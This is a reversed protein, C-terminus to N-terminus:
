WCSLERPRWTFAADCLLKSIWTYDIVFGLVWESRFLKRTQIKTVDHSFGCYIPGQACESQDFVPWTKYLVYFFRTKNNQKHLISIMILLLLAQPEHKRWKGRTRLQGDHKIMTHYVAWSAKNTLYSLVIMQDLDDDTTQFREILKRQLHEIM